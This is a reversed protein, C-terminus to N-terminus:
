PNVMWDIAWTTDSFGFSSTARYGQMYLRDGAQFGLQSLLAPTLDLEGAGTPVIRAVGGGLCHFSQPDPLARPTLNAATAILYIQVDPSIARAGPQSASLEGVIELEPRGTCFVGDTRVHAADFVFAGMDAPGGDPDPPLMPNGADICPSNSMLELDSGPGFFQPNASINGAGPAGGEVSSYSVIMNPSVSPGFNGWVISSDLVRGVFTDVGGVSVESFDCREARRHM